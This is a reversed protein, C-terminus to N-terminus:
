KDGTIIAVHGFEPKAAGGTPQWIAIQGVGGSANVKSM